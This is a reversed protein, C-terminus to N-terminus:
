EEDSSVVAGVAKAGLKATGVTVDVATSVVTAAVGVTAGTVTVVACGPLWAAVLLLALVRQRSPAADGALAPSRAPDSPRM